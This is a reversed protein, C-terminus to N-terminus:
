GGMMKRVSAALRRGEDSELVKSLIERMAASDGSRAARELAASDVMRSLKKGDESEALRKMDEAKGRRMLERSINELDKM